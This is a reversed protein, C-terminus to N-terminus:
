ALPVGSSACIASTKACKTTAKRQGLPGIWDPRAIDRPHEPSSRNNKPEFRQVAAIM